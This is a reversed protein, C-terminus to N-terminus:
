RLRSNQEDVLYVPRGKIEEYIRAIYSGVLGLSFMLVSGILLLLLIVTTFGDLAQGSLKDYLAKGGLVLSVLFTFLGLLTVLHLPLSTFSSISQWSLNLLRLGSWKSVGTERAPETFYVQATPFHLWTVLGRFFRGREPLQRYADIVKRDLLKFDSHNRLDMGTLSGFLAYFGRALLRYATSQSPRATKCAEVVAVGGQWIALMQPILAPPHQLDSDMVIAADGAVYDLGAMIAAEKGFNRNLSLLSTQPHSECFGQMVELTADTSGDNVVLLQLDVDAVGDAQTLIAELNGALAEAENFVPIILTVTKM